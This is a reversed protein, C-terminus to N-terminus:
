VFECMTVNGAILRQHHYSHTAVNIKHLPTYHVQVYLTHKHTNRCYSLEQIRCEQQIGTPQLNEWTKETRFLVVIVLTCSM